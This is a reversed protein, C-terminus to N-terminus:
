AQTSSVSSPKAGHEMGSHTASGSPSAQMCSAASYQASFGSSPPQATSTGRKSRMAPSIVTMPTCVGSRAYQVFIAKTCEEHGQHAASMLASVGHDAQLDPNASHELLLLLVAPQGHAAAAMLPTRGFSAPLDVAAGRKLLEKAVALQGEAAAAHLLASSISVGEQNEWSFLADVHGGKRLWKVVKPLEGRQAAVNIEKPLPSSASSSM